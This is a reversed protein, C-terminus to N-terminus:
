SLYDKAITNNPSCILYDVDEFTMFPYSGLAEIKDETCLAVIAGAKSAAHHKFEGDSITFLASDQQQYGVVFGWLASTM